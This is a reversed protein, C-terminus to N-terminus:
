DDIKVKREGTEADIKIKKDGNKIKVDGDEDVKKKYNGDKIKYSGDEDVKKKYDGNKYKYDVERGSEDIYVYAGDDKRHIYGNIVKGSTGWITDHTRTDVYMRVPKKTEADVLLGTEADTVLNLPEGTTVDVYRANSDSCATWILAAFGAFLVTKLAKM